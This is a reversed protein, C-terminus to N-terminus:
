RLFKNLIGLFLGKNGLFFIVLLFCCPHNQHLLIEASSLGSHDSIEQPHHLILSLCPLGFTSTWNFLEPSGSYLINSSFFFFFHTGLSIHRLLMKIVGVSVLECWWSFKEMAMDLEIGETLEWVLELVLSNTFIVFCRADAHLLSSLAVGSDTKKWM